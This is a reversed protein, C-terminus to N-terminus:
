RDSAQLPLFGAVRAGSDDMRVSVAGRQFTNLVKVGEARYDDASATTPGGSSIVVWEPTSWRAFGPPNSRPSGHHPALLVDCDYPEQSLVQELGPSELDGALLLRRGAHEVGLVLSNANDSGIVGLDDPHLVTITISDGADDGSDDGAGRGLRIRDGSQLERVPVGASRLLRWLAAPASRDADDIVSDFMRHSCWVAGIPFREMLGPLANFHDVDPHSVVVADLRTVGRAWLARAIVDAARDPGGLSGADVLVTTGDPAQLLTACGHGVAIVEAHLADQENPLLTPLFGIAVGVLGMRWWAPWVGRAYLGAAGAGALWAYLMALRWEGMGAAATWSWPTDAVRSVGEALANLSGECVLAPLATATTRVMDPAALLLVDVVCLLGGAYLTTPLTLAILPAALVAGPTLLHFREALLPGAVLLVAASAAATTIAVGAVRRMARQPLPRTRAVLRELPPRERYAWKAWAVGFALLVATALFSVQTGLALWEGPGIVFVFLAAAALGNVALSARGTYAAVALVLVMATARLAPPDAGVLAAYAIALAVGLLLGGRRSVLGVLAAVAGLSAVIGVHLGSVVLTHVAGSRRFAEVLEDPVGGSVGLLMANALAASRPSLHDELARQAAGRVRAFLSAPAVVASRRDLVEVAAAHNTWVGALRRDRRATDAADWQGPNLAPSPRRLQGYVRLRDGREVAAADGVVSVLCRGRIPRWRASDRLAVVRVPTVWRANAPIARYPSPEPAAYQTPSDIAIAEIAVPEGLRQAYRGLDDDPFLRQNASTWGAAVCAASALLLAASWAEGGRRWAVAWVGLLVLGVIAWTMPALAAGAGGHGVLLGVVAAAVLWVLPTDSPSLPRARRQRLAEVSEHPANM